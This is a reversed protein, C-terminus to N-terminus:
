NMTYQTKIEDGLMKNLYNLDDFTLTGIANKLKLLSTLYTYRSNSLNRKANYLTSVASLVDVMTRTGAEYGAQTATLSSQASIVSQQYAKIASIAATINNYNSRVQYVTDRYVGELNESLSVYNYQAQEVQSQTKGGSYLPINLNLTVTNNGNYNKSNQGNNDYYDGYNQKKTTGSSADLTVTPMHGTQALRIQEKAIDQNLRAVLLNLNTTESLQLLPKIPEPKITEFHDTKVSSLRTYFHGSMKRLSELANNLNNYATVQDATVQDYKAQANQLDTVAVLGVNYKQTTQELQRQIYSKEAETYSIIDITNLINFYAVATNLILTQGKSQYNIDAASAQKKTIDLTKWNSYDFISQSLTLSLSGTKSNQGDRDRYGEALGYSAKLGIQPLLSARSGSIASYAKDKDALSSLLDPNTLKAQEYVDVLNEAQVFSSFCFILLLVKKM